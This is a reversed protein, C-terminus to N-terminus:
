RSDEPPPRSPSGFANDLAQEESREQRANWDADGMVKEPCPDSESPPVVQEEVEPNPTASSPPAGDRAPGHFAEVIARAQTRTAGASRLETESAQQVAKLSGLRRLLRDRTRVGVGPVDDLRSRLQTRKQSTSRIRNSSRHAEDRALALLGLAAPQSRLEIPNKQGPLYIRDVVRDGDRLEREKALGALSVGSVGLDRLVGLAVNLQGKGGDVVLLDPLEWGRDGDRGRRFRRSLVEHMAGYDDGGSVRQLKFSRYRAPEPTGDVLMVISGVTHDGGTHSIDLCEIRRPLAPLRLKQQLAGLRQELDERARAQERFSHEANDRAMEVIQARDGRKPVLLRVKKGRLDSLLAALGEMVEVELPLLIEAPVFGGRQYYDRVFSALLDDDPLRVSRLGFSRVDSLKGGRIRLLAVQAQDAQRFLGLADQDLESVVAVRNTEMVREVARIQDRLRAAREYQLEAAADRMTQELTDLLEDRRGDLFLGVHRVQEAYLDPEVERVCPAPCRKIQYQLCPRTRTSLEADSCTRLQFHRNVV